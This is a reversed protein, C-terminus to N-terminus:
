LTDPVCVPRFRADRGPRSPPVQDAARGVPVAVPAVDAHRYLRSGGMETSILFAGHHYQNAIIDTRLIRPGSPAQAAQSSFAQIKALANLIGHEFNLHVRCLPDAKLRIEASNGIWFDVTQTEVVEASVPLIPNLMDSCLRYGVQVSRENELKWRWVSGAGERQAFRLCAPRGYCLNAVAWRKSDETSIKIGRWRFALRRAIEPWRASRASFEM